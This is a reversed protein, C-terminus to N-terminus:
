DGPLHFLDEVHARLYFFTGPYSKGVLLPLFLTVAEDHWFGTLRNM